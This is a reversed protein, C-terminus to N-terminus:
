SVAVPGVLTAIQNHSLDMSKLEQLNAVDQFSFEKFFNHTLNLFNLNKLNVLSNNLSTIQNHGLLVSELEVSEEFDEETM